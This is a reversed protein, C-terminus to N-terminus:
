CVTDKKIICSYQADTDFMPTVKFNSNELEENYTNLLELKENVDLNNKLFKKGNKRLSDIIEKFMYGTKYIKNLTDVDELTFLMKKLTLHNLRVEM